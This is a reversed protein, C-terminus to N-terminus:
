RREIELYGILGSGDEFYTVQAVEEPPIESAFAEIESRSRYLLYWDMCAEMYAEEHVGTRFNPVLLRGGSGLLGFLTRTFRAALRADLYDYLGAAYVLDFGGLDHKGALFHRVSLPRTEIAPSVTERYGAVTALSVPDQDTAVLRGIRGERLALSSEAERLHGCAVALVQAGPRRAATADIRAALIEKRQRVAECATVDVTHAMVARGGETAAEVAPRAAPHRYVFDLLGADGPYGRPRTFSHRTFPDEHVLGMVKHRRVAPLVADRWTREQFSQRMVSLFDIMEAIFPDYGEAAAIAQVQDLAQRVDRAVDAYHRELARVPLRRLPTSSAPARGSAAAHLAPATARSTQRTTRSTDRMATSSPGSM